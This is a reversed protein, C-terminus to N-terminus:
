LGEVSVGMSRLREIVKERPAGAKLAREAQFRAAQKELDSKLTPLSPPADATDTGFVADIRPGGPRPPAPPTAPTASAPSVPVGAITPQAATRPVVAGKDDFTFKPAYSKGAERSMAELAAQRAQRKQEIVAPPNGPQPFYIEDAKRYEDQGIAAGSERRLVAVIFNDKAQKFKQYEESQLSAGLGFPLMDLTRGGGQTGAKDGVKGRLIGEAQWMRDAFGAAKGEGENFKGGASYPNTPPKPQAGAMPAIPVYNGKGGQMNPNPANADWILTSKNGNEDTTEVTRPPEAKPPAPAGVPVPPAGPRVFAPQARGEPTYVEGLQPKEYPKGIAGPKSKDIVVQQPGNPTDITAIATDPKEATQKRLGFESQWQRDSVLDRGRRYAREEQLDASKLMQQAGELDGISLLKNGLGLFDPKGGNQTQTALDALAMRRGSQIRMQVGEQRGAYFQGAPDLKLGSLIGWDVAM